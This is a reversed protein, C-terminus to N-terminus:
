SSTSADPGPDSDEKPAPLAVAESKVDIVQVGAARALRQLDMQQDRGTIFNLNQVLAPGAAKEKDKLIGLIKSTLELIDKGARLDGLAYAREVFRKAQDLVWGEDIGVSKALSKRLEAVRAKLKPEHKMKSAATTWTKGVTSYGAEEYARKADGGYKVVLQCFLEQKENIKAGKPEAFIEEAPQELIVAKLKKSARTSKELDALEAPDLNM